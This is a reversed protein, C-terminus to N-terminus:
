VSYSKITILICQLAVILLINLRVSSLFALKWFGQKDEAAHLAEQLLQKPALEGNIMEEFIDQTYRGMAISRPITTDLDLYLDSWLHHFYIIRGM